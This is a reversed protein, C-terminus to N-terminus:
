DKNEQATYVQKTEPKKVKVIKINNYEERAKSLAFFGAPSDENYIAMM